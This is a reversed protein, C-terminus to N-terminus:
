QEGYRLGHVHAKDGLRHVIFLRDYQRANLEPVGAAGLGTAINDVTESHAVVLVHGGTHNNLIDKVITEWSDAQKPEIHTADATPQATEQTRVRKSVFIATLSADQMIHSLEEARKRGKETLGPDASGDRKEAHRVIYITTTADQSSGSAPLSTLVSLALVLSRWTPFMKQVLNSFLM